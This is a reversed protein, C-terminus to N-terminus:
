PKMLERARDAENSQPCSSLLQNWIDNRKSVNRKQDYILGIKFRAACTKDGHPFETLTRQYIELAADGRGSKWLCEGMWYLAQEKYSGGDDKEYVIKFGKYALDYKGQIYDERAQNFLNGLDLGDVVKVSPANPAAPSAGAASDASMLAGGQIVIKRQELRDLKQGLENLRRQTESIDSHLRGIQSQLDHIMTTLDARMQSSTGGQKLSLEDISRQVDAIEKRASDVQSGVQRLEQTRLLTIQSCGALLGGGVLIVPWCRAILSM